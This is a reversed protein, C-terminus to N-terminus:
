RGRLPLRVAMRKGFPCIEIYAGVLKMGANRSVRISGKHSHWIRCYVRNFECNSLEHNTYQKLLSALGRGRFKEVTYLGHTKVTGPPLRWSRGKRERLYRDGWWVGQIAAMEGNVLLAFGLAEEGLYDEAHVPADPPIRALLADTLWVITVGPPLEPAPVPLSIAYVKWYQYNGLVAHLIRKLLDFIM